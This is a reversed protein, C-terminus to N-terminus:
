EDIESLVTYPPNSVLLDVPEPLAALGDSEVLRIQQHADHREINIAAVALAEPSREIAYIRAQPLAVALAIGICGSGTGLDAITLPASGRGAAWALAREVLLETEPRPVLVRADVVLDLGWFEKHGVLYAVPERAARRAVLVALDPALDPPAPSRSEAVLRARDWGLLHALLVEADLRPTPSHETLTASAAR